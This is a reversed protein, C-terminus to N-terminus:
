ADPELAAHLAIVTRNKKPVNRYYQVVDKNQEIEQKREGFGKTFFLPSPSVLVPELVRKPITQDVMTHAHALLSYCACSGCGMFLLVVATGTATGSATGVIIVGHQTVVVVGRLGTTTSTGAFSFTSWPSRCGHISDTDRTTM